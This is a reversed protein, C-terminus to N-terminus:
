NDNATEGTSKDSVIETVASRALRLKVGQAVEVVVVDDGEFKTITGIIGGVTMVKNGKQLSKMLDRQIKLRKQQPRILIFYFIFFLMGLIFLNDMMMKEPSLEYPTPESATESTTQTAKVAAESAEKSASTM